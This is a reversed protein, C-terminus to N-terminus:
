FVTTRTGIPRAELQAIRRLLQRNQAELRAMRAEYDVIAKQMRTVEGILCAVKDINSDFPGPLKRPEYM